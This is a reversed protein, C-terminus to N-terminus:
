FSWQFSRMNLIINGGLVIPLSMLFSIKLAIDRDFKRLLLASVTLGSRSFGPLAALGQVVGMIIGDTITIDKVNRYGSHKARLELFATFLLLIGILITVSEGRGNMAEAFTQFVKLLLLGLSGSIITALGLFVILKQDEKPHKQYHILTKCLEIVDKRFYILAALFTGLHLFLAQQVGTQFSDGSHFLNEKALLIWGESSVPLWEAIGQIIGLIIQEFM